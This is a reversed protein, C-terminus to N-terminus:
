QKILQKDPGIILNLNYINIDYLAGGSLKPDFAPLVERQLYKDYRSSYQSYNAQVMTIRGLQPLLEQLKAYNPMHLLSVAEFLFLKKSQALEALLEVERLNSAFPKEVIVNKDALLAERTYAFHASNILGIYVFDIDPNQLFENYDTYISPIHYQEALAEGKELSHPRVFIATVQVEEVEQLALLVEKVIGGSGAIGLKM